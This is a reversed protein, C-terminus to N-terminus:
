PIIEDILTDNYDRIEIREYLESDDDLFLKFHARAEELTNYYYEETPKKDARIFRVIFCDMEIGRKTGVAESPSILGM